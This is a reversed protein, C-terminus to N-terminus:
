CKVVFNTISIRVQVYIDVEPAILNILNRPSDLFGVDLDMMVLNAQLFKATLNPPSEQLDFNMAVSVGKALAKPLHFLKLEGIQEL